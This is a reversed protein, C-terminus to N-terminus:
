SESEMHCPLKIQIHCGPEENQMLRISGGHSKLISSVLSLGMGTGKGEAKTTFFPEFIKEADEEPM